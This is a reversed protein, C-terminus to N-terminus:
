TEITITINKDLISKIIKHASEDSSDSWSQLRIFFEEDDSDIESIIAHGGDEVYHQDLKGKIIIKM